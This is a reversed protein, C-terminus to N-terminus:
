THCPENMHTVHSMWIHSMVWEYTHCSENMHAVHSMWIHSMVWEYTHCSENMRPTHRTWIHSVVLWRSDLNSTDPTSAYPTCAARIDIRICSKTQLFGSARWNHCSENTNTVHSMRVHSMVWEYTHCSQNTHTDHSMWKHRLKNLTPHGFASKFGPNWKWFCILWTTNSLRSRCIFLRSRGKLHMVASKFGPNWECFSQRREFAVHSMQYQSMVWKIYSQRREFAIHSLSQRREFAVHSM